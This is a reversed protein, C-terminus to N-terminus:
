LNSEEAAFLEELTTGFVVEVKAVGDESIAYTSGIEPHRGIWNHSFARAEALADFRHHARIGDYTSFILHIKAPKCTGM